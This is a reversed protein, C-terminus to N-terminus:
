RYGYMRLNIKTWAKLGLFAILGVFGASTLAAAFPAALATYVFGATLGALCCAGLAAVFTEADPYNNFYRAWSSTKGDPAIRVNPHTNLYARQTAEDWTKFEEWDRYKLEAYELILTRTQRSADQQANDGTGRLYEFGEETGTALNGPTKANRVEPETFRHGRLSKMYSGVYLNMITKLMELQSCIFSRGEAMSVSKTWEDDKYLETILSEISLHYKALKPLTPTGVFVDAIPLGYHKFFPKFTPATNTMVCAGDVADFEYEESSLDSLIKRHVDDMCKLSPNSGNPINSYITM